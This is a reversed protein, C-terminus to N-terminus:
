GPRTSVALDNSLAPQAGNTGIPDGQEPRGSFGGTPPEIGDWAV